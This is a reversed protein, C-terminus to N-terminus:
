RRGRLVLALGLAATAGILLPGYDKVANQIARNWDLVDPPIMAGLIKALADNKRVRADAALVDDPALVYTYPPQKEPHNTYPGNIRQALKGVQDSSCQTAGCLMMTGPIRTPKSGSERVSQAWVALTDLDNAEDETAYEGLDGFQYWVLQPARLGGGPPRRSGGGLRDEAWGIADSLWSGVHARRVPYAM